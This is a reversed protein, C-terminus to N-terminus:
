APQTGVVHLVGNGDVTLDVAAGPLRVWDTGDGKASHWIQGQANVGYIDSHGPRPDSAIRVLAGTLPTWTQGDSNLTYIKFGGPGSQFSM